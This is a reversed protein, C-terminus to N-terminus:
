QTLGSIPASSQSGLPSLVVAAVSIRLRQLVGLSEYSTNRPSKKRRGVSMLSHSTNFFADVWLGICSSRRTCTSSIVPSLREVM